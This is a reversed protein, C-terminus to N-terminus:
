PLRLLQRIAGRMTDTVDGSSGGVPVQALAATFNGTVSLPLGNCQIGNSSVTGTVTTGFFTGDNTMTGQPCTLGPANLTSAPVVLSFTNGNLPASQPFSGITVTHDPSVTIVIPGSNNTSAGGRSVVLNVTGRYTGASVQESSTSSSSGGGCGIVMLALVLLILRRMTGEVADGVGAGDTGARHSARLV